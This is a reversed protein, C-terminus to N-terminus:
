LSQLFRLLAKRDGDSLLSFKNRSIDAEGGHMKIADEISHARGDHLLFYEGGQSKPSLGLGWLPATRWESTKASGETYGDDLGSGMDHLLLDTFPHFENNSLSGIASPGTTLTQKHCKECGISVFLQNGSQVEPNDQERQVPAKLTQLYFVLDNVKNASVEADIDIHSYVDLPVFSSTIGMDQNYANAVQQLLSYVAAKKGFRCIYKGNRPIANDFPIVFSPIMNYNPVGSIGDEDIDNPDAMALITADPVAEIFGLGTNGPPTFRAFSAGAPIEEPTYGPLAINQLQPGGNNLFQNGTSDTQGFRTLTTFLVGKGDGAHCSQCSASVFIPGLGTSATFVEGFAADGAHHQLNQDYSLDEITGDLTQDDAEGSPLIKQCSITVCVALFILSIVFIKKNNSVNSKLM